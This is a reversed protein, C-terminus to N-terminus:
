SKIGVRLEPIRADLGAELGAWNVLILELGRSMEACFCISRTSSTLFFFCSILTPSSTGSHCDFKSTQFDLLLFCLSSAMLRTESIFFNSSASNICFTSFLFNLMPFFNLMWTAFSSSISQSSKPNSESVDAGENGDTVDPDLDANFPDRLCLWSCFIGSSISESSFLIGGILLTLIFGYSSAISPYLLKALDWRELSSFVDDTLGSLGVGIEWGLTTSVGVSFVAGVKGSFLAALGLLLEMVMLGKLTM